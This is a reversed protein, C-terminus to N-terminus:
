LAGGGGSFKFSTLPIFPISFALQPTLSFCYLSFM